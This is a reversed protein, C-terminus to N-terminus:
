HCQCAGLSCDFADSVFQQYELVIDMSIIKSTDVKIPASGDLPQMYTGEGIKASFLCGVQNHSSHQVQGGISALPLNPCALVGLVVKGEDLLALATAYQDGRLFSRYFNM